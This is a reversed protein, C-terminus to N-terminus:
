IDENISKTLQLAAVMHEGGLNARSKAQEENACTLIGFGIPINYDLEVRLIGETVIKCVYDFHPTAGQIVTGIALLCDYKKFEALAQLAVPIEASGAVRLVKINGKPVKYENLVKLASQLSEETIHKNFQAVVIGVSYKGADFAEFDGTNAYQM